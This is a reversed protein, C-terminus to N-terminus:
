RRLKSKRNDAKRLKPSNGVSFDVETVLANSGLAANKENVIRSIAAKVTGATAVVSLQAITRFVGISKSCASDASSPRLSQRGISAQNRSHGM